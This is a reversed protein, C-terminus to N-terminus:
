PLWEPPLLAIFDARTMKCNWHVGASFYVRTQPQGDSFDELEEVTIVAALNMDMSRYVVTDILDKGVGIQQQEGITVKRFVPGSPSIPISM